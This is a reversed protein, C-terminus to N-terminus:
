SGTDVGVTVTTENAWMSDEFQAENKLLRMGAFTNGQGLELDGADAIFGLVAASMSQFLAHMEETAPCEVRIVVTAKWLGGVVNELDMCSVILAPKNSGQRVMYDAGTRRDAEAFAGTEQTIQALLASEITSTM